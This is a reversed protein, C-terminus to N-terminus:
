FVKKRRDTKVKLIKRTGIGEVLKRGAFEATVNKGSFSRGNRARIEKAKEPSTEPSIVDILDKKRLTIGSKKPDAENVTFRLSDSVDAALFATKRRDPIKRRDHLNIKKSLSTKGFRSARIRGTAKSLIKRVPM